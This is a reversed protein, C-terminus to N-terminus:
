EGLRLTFKEGKFIVVRNTTICKFTHTHTDDVTDDLHNRQWSLVYVKQTDLMFGVNIETIFNDFM